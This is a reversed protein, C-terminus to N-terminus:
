NMRTSGSGGWDVHDAKAKSPDPAVYHRADAPWGGEPLERSERLDLADACRDDDIRGADVMATLAALVDYHWAAPYHLRAWTDSVLGDRNRRYLLRRELLCDAARDAAAIADDDADERGYVALARVALWTENVSSISAEPNRDCNWGGDPWQWLVLREVLEAGRGDDLGLRTIALLGNSQQSACRRYRGNAVPVADPGYKGSTADFERFYRPALWHDLLEDRAPILREDGPPYGIDALSALAWHVGRWKHYTHAGAALGEVLAQARPSQRIEEQLDRIPRSKPDDKLVTVRLKWRISPEPSERLTDVVDSRM